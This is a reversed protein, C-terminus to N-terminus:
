SFFGGNQLILFEPKFSIEFGQSGIIETGVTVRGILRDFWSPAPWKAFEYYKVVTQQGDARSPNIRNILLECFSSSAAGNRIGDM